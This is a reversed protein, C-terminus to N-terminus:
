KDFTDKWKKGVEGADKGSKKNRDYEKLGVSYSRVGQVGRGANGAALSEFTPTDEHYVSGQGVPKDSSFSSEKGELDKGSGNPWIENYRGM